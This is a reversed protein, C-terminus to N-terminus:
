SSSILIVFWNDSSVGFACACKRPLQVTSMGGSLFYYNIFFYKFILILFISSVVVVGALGM